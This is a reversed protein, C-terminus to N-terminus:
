DLVEQLIKSSYQNPKLVVDSRTQYIRETRKPAATKGDVGSGYSDRIADEYNRRVEERCNNKSTRRHKSTAHKVREIFPRARVGLVFSGACAFVISIILIYDM